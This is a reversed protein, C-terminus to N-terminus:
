VFRREVREAISCTLEYAITGSLSAIPEIPNDKGWLTASDGVDIPLDQVDVAIMDMSVRGLLPVVYGNILVPTGTPAHRPYGDAYGASIIAIRSAKELTYTGGYGITQGAQMENVSIISAKFTMAPQLNLSAATKDLLPSIGYMLIGPRVTQHASGSLGCVGASNLISLEAIKNSGAFSEIANIQALNETKEPEDANALHTMLKINNKAIYQQLETYASEASQLSFGLRGMGTDVKFWVTLGECSPLKKLEQFQHEAYIVPVLDQEAMMALDDATYVGSLLNLRKSVGNSRLFIADNLDTVAFEDADELASATELMGHGYGNAKIVAMIKANPVMARTVALNHRMAAQDIEVWARAVRARERLRM